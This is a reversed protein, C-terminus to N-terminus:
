IYMTRKLDEGIDAKMMVSVRYSNKFTDIESAHKQQIHIKISNKRKFEKGCPCTYLLGCDHRIHHILARPQRYWLNCFPCVYRDISPKYYAMASQSPLRRSRALIM